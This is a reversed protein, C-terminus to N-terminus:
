SKNFVRSSFGGSVPFDTWVGNCYRAMINVITMKVLNKYELLVLCPIAFAASKGDGTATCCLLDSREGSDMVGHQYTCLRRWSRRLQKSSSGAFPTGFGNKRLWLSDWVKFLSIIMGSDLNPRSSASPSRRLLFISKSTRVKCLCKQYPRLGHDAPCM